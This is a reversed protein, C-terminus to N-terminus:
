SEVHAVPWGSRAAANRLAAADAPAAANQDNNFYAFVETSAPWTQRVRDLWTSLSHKGYRPWPNAAGEHFRVYGWDATRWLPGQPRGQRDSWCLAANHDTLIQKTEDTEWSQHRFEVCVRPAAINLKRTAARFEALCADLLAPAARMTPPLQVLIPGLRDGLGAAAGLLRSVPEAPDRLRRIHTLYRSAKITMVFDDPTRSRWDAFIERTALRYFTGNNEVTSFQTAYHELWRSAPVGPPYFADRWDRYQWGSTGILLPM